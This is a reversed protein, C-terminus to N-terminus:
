MLEERLYDELYFITDIKGSFVSIVNGCQIIECARRDVDSPLKTKIGFCHASIEFTDSFGPLYASIQREFLMKKEKIKKSDLISLLRCADSYSSAVGLPGFNVSTLTYLKETVPYLSAFPGDMVTLGFPEFANLPVCKFYICPEFYAGENLFSSHDLTCWTCDVVLDFNSGNVRVQRGLDEVSTVETSYMIVQDLHSSFYESAKDPNIISEEVNIVGALNAFQSKDDVEEWEYRDKPFINKYDEFSLYSGASPVGYLNQRLPSIFDDYVQKFRRAGELSQDRTKECRPYHYGLHLRNQNFRSAGQFNEAEKEYVTVECGLDILTCAAHCGYWGAGIM